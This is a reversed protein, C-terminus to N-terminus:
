MAQWDGRRAAKQKEQGILGWVIEELSLSKPARNKAETFAREGIQLDRVMDLSLADEHRLYYIKQKGFPDTRVYIDRGCARCKMKRKPIPDLNVSCHPCIASPTGQTDKGAEGFLGM